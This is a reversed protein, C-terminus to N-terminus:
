TMLGFSTALLPVLLDVPSKLLSNLLSRRAEAGDDFGGDFDCGAAFGFGADAGGTIM